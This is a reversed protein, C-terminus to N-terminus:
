QPAPMVGSFGWFMLLPETPKQTGGRRQWIRAPRGKKYNSTHTRCASDPELGRDGTVGHQQKQRFGGGRMQMQSLRHVKVETPAPTRM